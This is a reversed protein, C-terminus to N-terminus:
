KILSVIQKFHDGKARKMLEFLAMEVSTICAGSQRMRQLGIEKNEPTRSSVCDSVVHVDFGKELLDNTTQFVCIHTEIGTIIVQKRDLAMLKEMFLPENCCSFCDKEIPSIGTSDMLHRIEDVTQGLKSPIQEMWIIPIELIQMGKILLELSNFLSAQDHMIRALRGQVDVLLLVTQNCSFM